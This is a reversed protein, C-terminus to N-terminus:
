AAFIFDQGIKYNRSKLFNKVNQRVCMGGVLVIIFSNGVKPIEKFHKIPLETRSNLIKKCDVEYVSSIKVGKKILYKIQRRAFKGFGWADISSNPPVNSNLWTKLYEAKLKQFSTIKYRKDNRSMRNKSDYWDLLYDNIKFFNVGKELLRLWLEYDEPFDGKRYLGYSYLIEKRFMASPHAIPSEIFRNLSIDKSSKTKNLWNVYSHFGSNKLGDVNVHNVLSSVVGYERNQFLFEFQTKLRDSKMIDDADMRAIISSGSIKIGLNIADVIGRGNNKVVKIRKDSKAISQIIELTSNDSHDNVAVLEWDSLTQNQISFVCDSISEAADKFPMVVSVKAEGRAM